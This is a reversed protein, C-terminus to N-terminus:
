KQFILIDEVGIKGKDAKSLGHEIVGAIRFGVSKELDALISSTEITQEKGNIIWRHYKSVVMLYYKNNRLSQATISDGFKIIGKRSFGINDRINKGLFDIVEEMRFLYLKHKRRDNIMLLKLDKEAHTFIENIVTRIHSAFFDKIRGRDQQLIFYDRPNRAIRLIAEKLTLFIDDPM